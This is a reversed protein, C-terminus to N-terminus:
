VCNMNTVPKFVQVLHVMKLVRMKLLLIYVCCQAAPSIELLLINGHPSNINTHPSRVSDTEGRTHDQRHCDRCDHVARTDPTEQSSYCQCVTM